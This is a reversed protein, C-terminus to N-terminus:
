GRDYTSRRIVKGSGNKPIDEVLEVIAPYEYKPLVEYCLKIVEEKNMFDGKIKLGIKMGCIPDSMGYALAEEVRADAKLTNEIEQPYINMGAKIILDDKRCEIKVFGKDNMVAIDGTYLWENKLVKNTMERDNYYGSMVSKGKVLLQGETNIPLEKGDSNVIRIDLSPLPKGAYEGYNDFHEPPLYLVRPSAETLGYVHYIDTNPFLKRIRKANDKGLSEGSIAISRLKEHLKDGSKIFRGLMGFLTPTGCMVSINEEEIINIIGSPQFNGSKFIIDTGKVLSILFEGTLVACHYLPRSILIRDKTGINFYTEIDRLNTLLNEESIMAGKPKGTTGSTCMILAPREQPDDYKGLNIDVINFEGNQASIMSPPSITDLIRKCHTDGYRYSLPIATVGAAFCSLLAMATALESQCLIAYCPQDLKKSFKEALVIADGFTIVTNDEKLTKESKLLMKNKIYNWIM